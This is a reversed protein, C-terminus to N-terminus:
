VWSPSRIIAELTITRLTVVVTVGTTIWVVVTMSFFVVVLVVLLLVLESCYNLRHAGKVVSAGRSFFVMFFFRYEYLAMNAMINASAPQELSSRVEVVVAVVSSVETCGAAVVCDDM